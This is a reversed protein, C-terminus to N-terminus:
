CFVGKAYGKFRRYEKRVCYGSRELLPASMPTAVCRIETVGHGSLYHERLYLLYRYIGRGRCEPMVYSHRLYGIRGRVKVGAFGRVVRSRREYCVWWVDCDDWCMKPDGLASLIDRRGFMQVYLDPASRIDLFTEVHFEDM